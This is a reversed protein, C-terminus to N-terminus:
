RFYSLIISVLGKVLVSAVMCIIATKITRDWRKLDMEDGGSVTPKSKMFLSVLITFIGVTIIIGMLWTTADNVLRELGTALKSSAISDAYVMTNLFLTSSLTAVGTIIKNLKNKMIMKKRGKKRKYHIM